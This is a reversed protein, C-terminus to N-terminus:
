IIAIWPLMTVPQNLWSWWSYNLFQAVYILLIAGLWVLATLSLVISTKIRGSTKGTELSQVARAYVRAMVHRMILLGTFLLATMALKFQQAFQQIADPSGSAIKQSVHEAFVPLARVGFLGIGGMLILLNLALYSWGAARTLQFIARFELISTLRGAVAQHAIAMPLLTLIPLSCFIAVLSVLPWIGSLEYGKSFSNEWGVFWGALWILSFPLTIALVALWSKIGQVWNVILCAIFRPGRPKNVTSDEMMFNPWPASGQGALRNAVDNATKRSLWGLVLIATVPTLCLIIGILYKVIAALGSMTRGISRPAKAIAITSSM